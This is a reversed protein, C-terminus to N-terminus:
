VTPPDPEASRRWTRRYRPAEPAQRPGQEWLRTSEARRVHRRPPLRGLGRPAGRRALVQNPATVAAVGGPVRIEGFTGCQRGYAATRSTRASNGCALFSRAYALFEDPGHYSRAEPFVPNEILEFDAAFYAVAAELDGRRWAEYGSRVLETNEPSRGADAHEQSM